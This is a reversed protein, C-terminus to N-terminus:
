ILGAEKLIKETLERAKIGSADDRGRINTAFIDIRGPQVVYGVFWGLTYKGNDGSSGTKGYLTGKETQVLRLLGRAIAMSRKSFPLEDRVLGKLFAVQEDASIKLTSGLWFQTIGGSIDENGYHVKNIYQKM